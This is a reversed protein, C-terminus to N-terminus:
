CKKAYIFRPLFNCESHIVQPFYYYNRSFKTAQVYGFIPGVHLCLGYLAELAMGRRNLCRLRVLNGKHIAFNLFLITWHKFWLIRGIMVEDGLIGIRNQEFVLIGVIIVFLVLKLRNCVNQHNLRHVRHQRVFLSQLVQLAIKTTFVGNLDPLTQKKCRQVYTQSKLLSYLLM